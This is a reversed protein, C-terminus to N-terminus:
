PAAEQEPRVQHAGLRRLFFRMGRYETEVLIGEALLRQLLTRDQGREGLFKEVAEARMPHVATIGLLDQEPNGSGSFSDGEYGILYEVHSIRHSFIQFARNVTEEDPPRVGSEAPPRIPIALYATKPALLAVFDAVQEMDRDRDNCGQVLMTETMLEGRFSRAFGLIGDMVTGLSLSGHPRDIGRWISESVADLKISVLDASGLEERVDERWLLSGNTIVAIRIGLPRLLEITRGLNIDLTPEGDPVFSLYDIVDGAERTQEVKAAVEEVIEEPRYFLRRDVQLHSTRGVQCYVCSYTCAKPPISNIGLSRGLRRSPVPGFAKM